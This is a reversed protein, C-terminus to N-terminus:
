IKNNIGRNTNNPTKYKESKLFEARWKIYLKQILAKFDKNVCLDYVKM